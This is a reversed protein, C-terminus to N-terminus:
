FEGMANDKLNDRLTDYINMAQRIHALGGEHRLVDAVKIDQKGNQAFEPWYTSVKEDYDLLGRDVMLAVIIAAISKVSSFM